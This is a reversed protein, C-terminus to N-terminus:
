GAKRALNSTGISEGVCKWRRAVAKYVSIPEDGRGGWYDGGLV